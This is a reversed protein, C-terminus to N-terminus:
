LGQQRLKQVAFILSLIWWLLSTLLFVVVLIGWMTGLEPETGGQAAVHNTSYLVWDMAFFCCILICGFWWSHTQMFAAYSEKGQLSLGDFDFHTAIMDPM